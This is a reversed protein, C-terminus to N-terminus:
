RVKEEPDLGYRTCLQWAFTSGLAFVDMVAQWRMHYGRRNRARANRVARKLLESDPISDVIDTRYHRPRFHQPLVESPHAFSVHKQDALCLHVYQGDCGLYFAPKGNVTCPEGWSAPEPARRARAFKIFEGFTSGSFADSRWAEALAAGRSRATIVETTIAGSSWRVSVDWRKLPCRPAAATAKGPTMDPVGTALTAIAITASM